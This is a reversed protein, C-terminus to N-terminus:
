QPNPPLLKVDLLPPPCALARLPHIKSRVHLHRSEAPVWPRNVNMALCFFQNGRHLTLRYLCLVAIHRICLCWVRSCHYRHLRLAHVPTRAAAVPLAPAISFQSFHRHFADDAVVRCYSLFFYERIRGMGEIMGGGEIGESAWNLLLGLALCLLDFSEVRTLIYPPVSIAKNKGEGMGNAESPTSSGKIPTSNRHSTGQRGLKSPANTKSSPKHALKSPSPIPLPTWKRPSRTSERQSSPLPPSSTNTDELQEPKVAHQENGQTVEDGRKGKVGDGGLSGVWGAQARLVVRTVLSLASDSPTWFDHFNDSYTPSSRSYSPLPHSHTSTSSPLLTLIRLTSCLTKRATSLLTLKM